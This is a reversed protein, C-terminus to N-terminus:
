VLGARENDVAARAQAMKAQVRTALRAHGFFDEISVKARLWLYHADAELADVIRAPEGSASISAVEAGQLLAVGSANNWEFMLNGPLVLKLGTPLTLLSATEGDRVNHRWVVGPDAGVGALSVSAPGNWIAAGRSSSGSKNATLTLVARLKAQSLGAAARTKAELVHVVSVVGYSVLPEPAKWPSESSYSDDVRRANVAFRPAEARLVETVRGDRVTVVVPVQERFHYPQLVLDYDRPLAAANLPANEALPQVLVQAMRREGLCLWKLLTNDNLDAAQPSDDVVQVRVHQYVLVPPALELWKPAAGVYFLFDGSAYAFDGFADREAGDYADAAAAEGAGILGAGAGIYVVAPPVDPAESLPQDLALSLPM